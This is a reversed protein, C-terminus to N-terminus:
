FLGVVRGTNLDIDVDYFVPRTPLGPMTRMEGVLPYLFGAGVSARIDRIPIRFGSPAGKIAPDHTFSLHTKAMCIPLRDFGLRTYLEIKKEAEPLFDVGEAGYIERCIIEIKEKIPLDLPYLFRFSSPLRSAKVVAEALARAGAGGDMWHTSVVADVAGAEIAAQRVVELEAPTDTSFKNIAVVVNVGFKLANKIHRELNPLGKRLLDLNEETYAVDLPKGAVVKPGGGHMKLARVTAVMVVVQPILGSYRCKIDFFKEMGIDAGFGSETVVFGDPGVLKLAIMDALISSNGHAINAFPGAHVFVPTGELTQMLTPKIADKMLVTMAGAVGLDEATIPEGQRNTGIVIRGMRERMDQLSTTLALIAMVESAVTIDFGTRRPMQEEPGLGIEIERLFRDNTDVVRRWTISDPDIDLRAFRRREEPTLENPDTKHIGLRQLRRLMPPSFRRKGEKDPPCLANFLQEDTQRAEHYIRTDIAAALLNNAATIAHIDGTLHLNFDEMPVVQSYGGGAAGGKIGFTPGQSPQRICTFVRKGLHAGLAQSLGVTTTTKGEGLPTPTIATVDVYIGNPRDKLRELIELRVKAMYNGHLELEEPLIGAEEAVQTIPKLTAEQAIEIDSPVPRRLKLPTPTFPRPM